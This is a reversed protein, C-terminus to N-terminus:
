RLQSFGDLRFAVVAPRLPLHDADWEQGAEVGLKGPPEPIDHIAPSWSSSVTFKLDPPNASLPAVLLIPASPPYKSRRNEDPRFPDGITAGKPQEAFGIRILRRGLWRV